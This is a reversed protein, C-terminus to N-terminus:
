KSPLKIFKNIDVPPLYVNQLFTGQTKTYLIGRTVAINNSVFSKLIEPVIFFQGDKRSVVNEYEVIEYSILVTLTCLLNTKEAEKYILVQTEIGINKNDPNLLVQIKTEFTFNHGLPLQNNLPNNNEGMNSLVSQVLKSLDLSDVSPAPHPAPNSSEPNLPEPTSSEPNLSDPFNLQVQPCPHDTSHSSDSSPVEMIDPSLSDSSM